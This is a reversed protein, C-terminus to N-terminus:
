PEPWLADLALLWRPGAGPPMAPSRHIAGRGDNGQWAAGKLLVIDGPAAHGTPPLLTGLPAASDPLGRRDIGADDLWETGPGRLTCLLRIGTRDVHWGPCMARDLPELRLGITPCGLLDAYLTLLFSIDACLGPDAHEGLAAHAARSWNGAADAHVVRRLAFPPQQGAPAVPRGRPYVCVQVAPEFIAVLDGLQQVVRVSATAAGPEAASASSLAREPM